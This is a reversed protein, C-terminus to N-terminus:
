FRFWLINIGQLSRPTLGMPATCPTVPDAAWLHLFHPLLSVLLQIRPGFFASDPNITLFYYFSFCLQQWSSSPFFSSFLIPFSLPWTKRHVTPNSAGTLRLDQSLLQSKQKQEAWSECVWRHILRQKAAAWLWCKCYILMKQTGGTLKIEATGQFVVSPQFWATKWTCDKDQIPTMLEGRQGVKVAAKVALLWQSSSIVCIICNQKVYYMYNQLSPTTSHLLLERLGTKPVLTQCSAQCSFSKMFSNFLVILDNILFFFRWVNRHEKPLALIDM